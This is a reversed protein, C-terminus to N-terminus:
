VDYILRGNHPGNELILMGNEERFGHGAYFKCYGDREAPTAYKPITAKIRGHFNKLLVKMFYTSIGHGHHGPLIDIKFEIDGWHQACVRLTSTSETLVRTPETLVRTPQNKPDPSDLVACLSMSDIFGDNRSSRRSTEYVIFKKNQHVITSWGNISM